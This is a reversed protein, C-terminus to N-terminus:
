SAAGPLTVPERILRQPERGGDIWAWLLIALLLGLVIKGTTNLRM